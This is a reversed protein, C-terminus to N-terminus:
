KRLLHHLHHLDPHVQGPIGYVNCVVQVLRGPHDPDSVGVTQDPPCFWQLGDTALHNAIQTDWAKVIDNVIHALLNVAHVIVMVFM